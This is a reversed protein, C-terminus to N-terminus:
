LVDVAVRSSRSCVGSVCGSALLTNVMVASCFRTKGEVLDDLFLDKQFSPYTPYEHLFYAALLKSLLDDDSSVTTWRSLRLKAFRPDMLEAIHYPKTYPCQYENALTDLPLASNPAINVFASEYVPSALYPNDAACLRIPMDAVYPFTYRLRTELSLSLQLLLCGDKVHRVVKEVDRVTRLRRVIDFAEAEPMRVLLEPLEELVENRDSVEDFKRKLTQVYTEAPATAYECM